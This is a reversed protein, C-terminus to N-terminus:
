SAGRQGVVEALQELEQRYMPRLVLPNLWQEVLGRLGSGTRADTVISVRSRTGDALPDVTFTTVVGAEADTEVIVRGPEPESVTMRFTLENGMAKVRTRFVTGAGTGGEEVTLEQFYRKPLIAPHGERYDALIAYVEKPPADIVKVVEVHAQGM